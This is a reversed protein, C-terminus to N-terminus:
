VFSKAENKNQTERGEARKQQKAAKGLSGRTSLNSLQAPHHSVRRRRHHGCRCKRKCRRERMGIAFAHTHPRHTRTHTLLRQTHTHGKVPGPVHSVRPALGPRLPSVSGQSSDPLLPSETGVGRRWAGGGRGLKSKRRSPQNPNCAPLRLAERCPAFAVQRSTHARVCRPPEAPAGENLLANRPEHQNIM